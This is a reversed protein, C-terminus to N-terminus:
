SSTSSITNYVQLKLLQASDSLNINYALLMKLIETNNTRAAVKIGDLLDYNQIPQSRELLTKTINYEEINNIKEDSLFLGHESNEIKKTGSEDKRELVGLGDYYQLIMKVLGIDEILCARELQYRCINGLTAKKNLLYKLTKKLGLRCAIRIGNREPNSLDVGSEVLLKVMDFNGLLCAMNICPYEPSKPVVGGNKIWHQLVEFKDSRCAEEFGDSRGNLKAGKSIFYDIWGIDGAKYATRLILSGTPDIKENRKGIFINFLKQMFSTSGINMGYEILLKLMEFKQNVLEFKAQDYHTDNLVELDKEYGLKCAEYENQELINQLNNEIAYDIIEALKDNQDRTVDKFNGFRSSNGFYLMCANTIDKKKAGIIAMLEEYIDQYEFFQDFDFYHSPVITFSPLYERILCLVTKNFRLGRGVKFESATTKFKTASQTAFFKSNNDFRFDRQTTILPRIYISDSVKIDRLDRLLEYRESLMDGVDIDLYEGENMFLTGMQVVTSISKDIVVYM